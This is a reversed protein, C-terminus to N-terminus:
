AMASVTSHFLSGDFDNDDSKFLSRSEGDTQCLQPNMDATHDDVGLLGGITNIDDVLGKLNKADFNLHSEHERGNHTKAQHVLEMTLKASGAQLQVSSVVKFLKATSHYSYWPNLPMPNVTVVSEPALKMFEEPSETSVNDARMFLSNKIADVGFEYSKGLLTGSMLLNRLWQHNCNSKKRSAIRDIRGDVTLKSQVDGGLMRPVQLFRMTGTRFLDFHQDMVNTMHPDATSRASSAKVTAAVTTVMPVSATVTTITNSPSATALATNIQTLFASTGASDPAAAAAVSAATVAVAPAGNTVPISIVYSVTVSGATLQRAAAATLLEKLRRTVTFEIKIWETKVGSLSAAIGAKLADQVATDAAFAAPDAVTLVLEGLVSLIRDFPDEAESLGWKYIRVNKRMALTPNCYGNVFCRTGAPGHGYCHVDGSIDAMWNGCDNGFAKHTTFYDGVGMGAAKWGNQSDCLAITDHECIDFPNLGFARSTDAFQQKTRLYIKAGEHECGECKHTELKYLFWGNLDTLSILSIDADSLKAIEFSSLSGFNGIAKATPTYAEEGYQLVPIWGGPAPAPAPTPAPTTPPAWNRNFYQVQYSSGVYCGAYDPKMQHRYYCMSNPKFTIGDCGELAECRKKCEEHSFAGHNVNKCCAHDVAGVNPPHCNRARQVQGWPGEDAEVASSNHRTQIITIEDKLAAASGASSM